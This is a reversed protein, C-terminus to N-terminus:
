EITIKQQQQCVLIYDISNSTNYTVIVNSKGIMLSQM